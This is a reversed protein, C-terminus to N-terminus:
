GALPTDVIALPKNNQLYTVSAIGLYNRLEGAPVKL